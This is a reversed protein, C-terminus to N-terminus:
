LLWDQKDEERGQTRYVLNITRKIKKIGDLSSITPTSLVKFFWEIGEELPRLRSGCLEKFDAAFEELLKESLIQENIKPNLQEQLRMFILNDLQAQISPQSSEAAWRVATRQSAAWNM